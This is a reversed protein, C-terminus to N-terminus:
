EHIDQLTEVVLHKVGAKSMRIDRHSGTQSRYDDTDEQHALERLFEHRYGVAVLKGDFDIQRRARGDFVATTASLM